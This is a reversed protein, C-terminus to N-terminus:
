QGWVEDVGAQFEAKYKEIVTSVSVGDRIEDAFEYFPITPYYDIQEIVNISEVALLANNLDDENDFWIEYDAQRDYDYVSEIDYIREWLYVILDPDEVAKPITYFNPITVHSRYGDASPGKPFPLFGLDYDAMDEKYSPIDYDSGVVMLTNGQRFFQHPEQWDGGESPRALGETALQSLFNLTELTRPAELTQQGDKFLTADNAALAQVLFSDSAIGWRDIVGDNDTDRNAEKIVEIFTNWNWNDADVYTQLPTLGLENMLTRNYIIGGAAGLHGIRFGYGRDEYRSFDETYLLQFANENKVYEDLPWFLDWSTLTPIMWPRALRIIDGVPEGAMLSASVRDRYEGYDIVIYEVNFNHKEMLAELNQKHQISDPNDEGISEDYWSVVRITRGGLDFDLADIEEREEAERPQEGSITQSAEGGEEGANNSVGSNEENNVGGCAAAMVLLFSLLVCMVVQRVRM